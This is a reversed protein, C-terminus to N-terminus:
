LDARAKLAAEWGAVYANLKTKGRQLILWGPLGNSRHHGALAAIALIAEEATPHASLKRTGMARLVELQIDSLLERAPRTPQERTENRLWLIEVAVPLSIGLLALLAHRSEFQREEYLCGTKLAKNCEEILWRARYIDVVEAIQQVTDVPESTYLLWEVPEEGAPPKAEFVRVVNVQVTEPLSPDAYRPRALVITTASFELQADRRERPAHATRLGPLGKRGALNVERTFVGKPREVFSRVTGDVGSLDQARRADVRVRFVFRHRTCFHAYSDSERDAVHIVECGSLVRATNEIGRTWRLFRRESDKATQAGSFNPRRQKKKPKRPPKDRFLAEGYAVGLPRRKASGEVILTYHFAFGPKGTHTYGTQAPDAQEFVCTTSDHIALVRHLPAARAATEDAYSDLLAKLTVHPNNLLRYGGQLDADSGMVEPFSVTPNEALKGATRDLRRKRRPDGLDISNFARRVRDVSEPPLKM